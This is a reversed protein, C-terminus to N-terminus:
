YDISNIKFANVLWRSRAMSTMQVLSILSRCSKHSESLSDRWSCCVSTATSCSELWLGDIFCNPPPTPDTNWDCVVASATTMTKKVPIGFRFCQQFQPWLHNSRFELRLGSFYNGVTTTWNHRVKSPVNVTPINFPWLHPFSLRVIDSYFIGTNSVRTTCNALATVCWIILLVFNTYTM